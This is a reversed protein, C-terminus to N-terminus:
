NKITRSRTRRKTFQDLAIDPKNNISKTIPKDTVKRIKWCIRSISKRYTYENKKAPLRLKM